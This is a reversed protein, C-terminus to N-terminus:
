RPAPWRARRGSGSLSSGSAPTLVVFGAAVWSRQFAAWVVAALILPSILAYIFFALGYPVQGIPWLFLLFHPPYAFYQYPGGAAAGWYPQAAATSFVDASYALQLDQLSTIQAATWLVSFDSGFVSGSALYHQVAFGLYGLGAVLVLTQSVGFVLRDATKLETASFQPRM